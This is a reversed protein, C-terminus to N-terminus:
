EGRILDRYTERRRIPWHRKGSVLVECPRPRSNYNSSMSMGYAGASYIAVLDGSRVPPIRRDKGFCDSTECIPGVIDVKRLSKSTSRRGSVLPSATGKVPWLHHYSDYLAPRLLDNMGADLVVFTRDLWGQKVYTVRSVLIASNGAVYRGPEIILEVGLKEVAPLIAKAYETPSIVPKGDYSICYGGGVNVATVDAGLARVDRVFKAAKRLGSRFPATTYMPSGLHLHVGEIAVNRCRDREAFIRRARHLDIGFKNEKKGTTTKAVTRADVDPNLRLLARATSGLRGAVRDIAQLEEVSEVDFARIGARVAQAIEDDTKGVGAFVVRSAKGGAKLVRFLEGGSVVDFGAGARALLRLISLNGCAKVSFCILPNAARFAGAIEGYRALLAARSYIYLPTGYREALAAVPVDECHLERQRQTFGDM